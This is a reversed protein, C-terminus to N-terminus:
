QRKLNVRPHTMGSVRGPWVQLGGPGQQSHPRHLFNDKLAQWGQMYLYRKPHPSLAASADGQMEAATMVICHVQSILTAPMGLLCPACPCLDACRCLLHCTLSPMM